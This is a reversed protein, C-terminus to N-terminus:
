RACYAHISQGAGVPEINHVNRFLDRSVNMAALDSGPAVQTNNLLSVWYLTDGTARSAQLRKRLWGMLTVYHPEIIATVEVQYVPKHDKKTTAGSDIIRAHYQTVYPFRHTFRPQLQLKSMVDVNLDRALTGAFDCPIENYFSNLSHRIIAVDNDLLDFQEARYYSRYRQIGLSIIVVAVSLVLLLELLTLGRQMLM